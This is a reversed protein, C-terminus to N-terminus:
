KQVSIKEVRTVGNGTVQMIYMGTAESQLNIQQSYGASIKEESSSYVVRGQLDTIVIQLNNIETNVSLTFVGNNPNPYISVAHLASQEQVGVCANVTIVVPATATCTSSDTYSYTVTQAGTGATMPSFSTGTVGPGSWTGGAPSGTLMVAADDLCVTTSAASGTVTPLPNITVMITDSGTCGNGDMVDVYYNGTSSVTIMQTTAATNWLYTSGANGADLTASGCVTTDAGLAVTPPTNITAMATDSNTCGNIDTVIVYYTGTTLVTLAQTTSGDNWLYASGANQADFTVTGGCQVVDNGLAVTPLPNITVDITDSNMCGNVDTVTVAYTGTATVNLTQNVSADNWLYASGANQADLTTSSCAAYDSGLNVVPLPNTMVMVMGTDTCGNADTGTVTYTTTVAPNVTETAANGGSSWVYTSAGSATLVDPSGSCVTSNAATATVSPPTNITVNITMISDCGLANPITDMYTGAVTYTEDGSPVTYSGCGTAAFSSASNNISLTITMVSDACGGIAPITDNFTGSTMHMQGSPATYMSCASVSFSSYVDPPNVLQAVETATLARNYMRFEDLLGGAPCGVNTSYGIVKFPGTGVITASTQAVTNVLVGDLYAQINGATQDYVFTTVHPAVTAGGTVLVDTIPGRLIWNNPGAVGNTFCRFSSSNADGFIYFLTSSATINSTWMSITWSGTLNPAYGTNVYDTSSTNGSGIVAGHCQGTPGQTLGGMLTATTTGPPPSSAYNTVTTGTEDFKYYLLEPVAQSFVTGAVGILLGLTTFIKKM